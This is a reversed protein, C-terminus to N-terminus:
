LGGDDDEEQEQCDCQEGPDLHAGCRPCTRYQEMKCNRRKKSIIFMNITNLARPKGAQSPAREKYGM